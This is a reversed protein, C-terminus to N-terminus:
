RQLESLRSPRAFLSALRQESSYQHRGSEAGVLDTRLQVFQQQTQREELVEHYRRLLEILVDKNRQTYEPAPFSEQDSHELDQPGPGKRTDTSPPPSYDDEWDGPAEIDETPAEGSFRWRSNSNSDTLIWGDEHKHRSSPLVYTIRFGGRTWSFFGTLVTTGLWLFTNFWDIGVVANASPDTQILASNGVWLVSNRFNAPIKISIQTLTM